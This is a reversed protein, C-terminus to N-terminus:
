SILTAGQFERPWMVWTKGLIPQLLIVLRLTYHRIDLPNVFVFNGPALILLYIAAWHFSFQALSETGFPTWFFAKKTLINSWVSIWHSFPSYYNQIFQSVNHPWELIVNIFLWLLTLSIDNTLSHPDGLMLICNCISMKSIPCNLWTRTTYKNDIKELKQSPLYLTM